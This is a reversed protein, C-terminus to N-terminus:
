PSNPLQQKINLKVFPLGIYVTWHISYQMSLTLSFFFVPCSIPGTTDRIEKGVLLAVTNFCWIHHHPHSRSRIVLMQRLDTTGCQTIDDIQCEDLIPMQSRDLWWIVHGVGVEGEDVLAVAGAIKYYQLRHLRSPTQSPYRGGVLRDAGSEDWM